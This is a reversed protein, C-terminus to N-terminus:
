SHDSGEKRRRRGYLGMVAAAMLLLGGVTYLTTGGGGTKPLVYSTDNTIQGPPKDATEGDEGTGDATGSGDWVGSLKNGDADTVTVEDYAVVVTYTSANYYGDPIKTETLTYTHGSPINTFSVSGNEGSTATKDDITVPNGDGRCISCTEAHRLTFEAGVVPRDYSDMKTFILEALFGHVSPIPFDITKPDSVSSAGNVSQIVRYQLTTEGNTNYVKNEVFAGDENRLRIRYKLTYTYITTSGQGTETYGSKKLDWTITSKSNAYSATNEANQAHSGELVYGQLTDGKDYLGILDIEDPTTSPIPDSAVWDAQSATEVTTKIEKFIQSYANKLGETNTSDYYYESGISNKLWNKYSETSTEDGIEYTTGTRDVVSYTRLATESQTIYKQITQGGVDVGISFITTGSAKISAAMERAKIAAKDSYSTGSDCYVGLVDDHFVGDAGVEGSSTYPDYGKYGSKVYTTPFGDSLFIIFKHKNTAGSLMDNALKLGAEVNTFRNHASAYGSANIITGTEQRMTNKLADAQAKSTCQSLGFIKHADTNFAVYGIKSVGLLNNEAFQDLFSEAAEMAAKYRTSDGFKSNMTNSIDMVIVVAMDPESAIEEIKQPTQVTLTIDFVNEIDTGAITKSVAVGNDGYAEGGPNDVQVDSPKGTADSGTEAMLSVGYDGAGSYAEFWGSDRLYMWNTGECPEAVADYAAPDLEEPEAEDEPPQEGTEEPPLYCTDIHFHEELGCVLAGEADRCTDGHVHYPIGCLAGEDPDAVEEPIEEPIEDPAEEPVPETEEDPVQGQCDVGHTHEQMTCILVRQPAASQAAPTDATAPEVEPEAEPVAEPQVEPDTVPEAESDTAPDTVPEAEPDTVPDAAPPTVIAYCSETHRHEPIDCTKELTIAPLILAYTTCFVVVAALCTVVRHWRKRRRRKASYGAASPLENHEM